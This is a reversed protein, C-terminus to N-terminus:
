EKRETEGVLESTRPTLFLNRFEMETVREPEEDKDSDLSDLIMAPAISVFGEDLRSAMEGDMIEVTCQVGGNQYEAEVVEGIQKTTSMQSSGSMVEVGDLTDVSERLIDENYERDLGSVGTTVGPRLVDVNYKVM